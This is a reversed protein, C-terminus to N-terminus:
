WLQVAGALRVCLVHCCGRGLVAEISQCFASVQKLPVFAQITGAFGGGHVRCAGKEGLQKECLALAIGMEQHFVAGPPIVNQLYQYSSHGSRRVLELFREFNGARLEDAEQRVRRNEEYFHLARLVARDGASQRLTKISTYFEEEEVERLVQKGFFSAVGHMERTIAAYEGTLGDHGTGCDVICLAYGAGAPFFPIKEVVPNAPDAFDLSVAGGLTCALQDMLGCPKLFYRNEAYQGAFALTLDSLMGQASLGNCICAILVAFSASSSLGSGPLVESSIYANFGQVPYGQEWLFAVTGRVLASATNEEGKQPRTKCAPLEIKGYGESFIRIKDTGNCSAAAIADLDVGAALVRGYQHDTHNGGLETRGPVSFCHLGDTEGFCSRYGRLLRSFREAVERLPRQPYVRERIEEFFSVGNEDAPRSFM